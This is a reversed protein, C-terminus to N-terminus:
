PARHYETIEGCCKDWRGNMPTPIELLGRSTCSKVTDPAFRIQMGFTSDRRWIPVPMYGKETSRRRQKGVFFM